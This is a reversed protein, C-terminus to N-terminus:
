PWLRIKWSVSVTWQRILCMDNAKIEPKM